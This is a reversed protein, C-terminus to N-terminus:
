GEKGCPLLGLLLSCQRAHLDKAGRIGETSREEALCWVEEKEEGWAVPALGALALTSFLTERCYYYPHVARFWYEWWKDYDRLVTRPHMMDPVAIYIRGGDSLTTRLRRLTEVPTLFHEVVHRLIILDFRGQNKEVWPGDLDSDLLEAGVEETLIRRCEPSAEIGCITAEPEQEKLYALGHGSGCGADLITLGAGSAAMHPRVRGWVEAMNRRVGDVGYDPKIELRYLPDYHRAYFEGYTAPTWRPNLCVLGCQCIVPHVEYGFQGHTLPEDALLVPQEPIAGCLHCRMTEWQPAFSASDDM